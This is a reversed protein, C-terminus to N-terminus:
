FGYLFNINGPVDLIEEIKLIYNKANQPLDSFERVEETSTQWGPMTLYEVQLVFM